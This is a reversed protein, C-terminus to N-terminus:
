KEFLKELIKSDNTYGRYYKVSFLVGCANTILSIKTGNKRNNYGIMGKENPIFPIDSSVYKLKNNYSKKYYKKLLSCFM